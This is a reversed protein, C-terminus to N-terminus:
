TLRRLFIWCHHLCLRVGGSILLHTKFISSFEFLVLLCVIKKIDM